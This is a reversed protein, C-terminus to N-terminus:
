GNSARVCAVSRANPRTITTGKRRATLASRRPSTTDTARSATSRKGLNTEALTEGYAPSVDILNIGADLTARVTEICDDLNVPHFVGGLSSAGFSLVSVQM